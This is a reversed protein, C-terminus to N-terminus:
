RYYNVSHNDCHNKVKCNDTILLTSIYTITELVQNIDKIPSNELYIVRPFYELDENIQEVSNFNRIEIEIGTVFSSPKNKILQEIMGHSSNVTAIFIFNMEYDDPWMIHEIIEYILLAKQKDIETVQAKLTSLHVFIFLILIINKKISRM